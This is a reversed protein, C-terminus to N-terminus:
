ETSAGTTLNQLPDYPSVLPAFIAILAILMIFMLAIKSATSLAKFRAGGQALREALGQRFM